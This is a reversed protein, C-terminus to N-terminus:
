LCQGTSCLCRASDKTRGLRPLLAAHACQPARRAGSASHAVGERRAEEHIEAITKPVEIKRRLVWRNARLDMLDQAANGM